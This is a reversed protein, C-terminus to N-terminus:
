QGAAPLAEGPAQPEVPGSPCAIPSITVTVPAVHFLDRGTAAFTFSGSATGGLAARGFVLPNGAFATTGNVAQIGFEVTGDTRIFANGVTAMQYPTVGPAAWSGHLAFQSGGASIEVKIVDSLGTLGWCFQGVFTDASAPGAAVLMLVGVLMGIGLLKRM